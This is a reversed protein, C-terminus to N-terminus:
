LILHSLGDPTRRVKLTDTHHQILWVLGAYSALAMQHWPAILCFFGNSLDYPFPQQFQGGHGPFQLFAWAPVPNAVFSITGPFLVDIFNAEM